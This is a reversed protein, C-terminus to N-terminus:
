CYKAAFIIAETMSSPDAMNKGAIDVATGHGPSTRLFPLGVTVNVLSEPSIIKFGIMAQDHYMAVMLDYKGNKMKLWASDSPLPGDAAIGISVLKKIAPMIIRSEEDGM